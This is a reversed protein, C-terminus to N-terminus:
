IANAFMDNLTGSNVDVYRQTCDISEHGLLHALTEMDGTKELVRNAFTRRGSHSSGGTIGAKKYLKTLHAQLM